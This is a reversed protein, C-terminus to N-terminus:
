SRGAVPEKIADLKAIIQRDSYHQLTIAKRPCVGACIGCGQCGAPEIYAKGKENIRPVNYPCSRVCTLCAVCKDEDVVSVVGGVMLYPQSLVTLARSVAGRAQTISETINKPGHALGCVYMGENVLDLPRLKMHAEMIFKDETLPLKLDRAFEEADPQPRIAASLVLLDPQFEIERNLTRDLVKIRLGGELSVEPKIASDFRIFTVGMERARRYQLEHMGYSRIDRYLIIVEMDPDSEKLHIANNIAQSCCVRSCYLHGAERSGVCQIMVVSKLGSIGESGEGKDRLRKELELQTLIRPSQGYMYEDPRYETGGTAIIVVGHRVNETKGERTIIDTSYNGLFGSSNSIRAGLYVKINQKSEVREILGALLKQPDSRESFFIKRANGGLENEKEVLVTEFGQDAVALAATMGALGGGMVLACRTVEARQQHLPLLTEARAVAMRVLDKAKDTSEPMHSAHVWSCQDRINAMEFLYKNLGGERITDQFLPEHTRPSCSAVVVRNLNKEQIAKIVRTQTDTSCTYLNEEAHVVNPITKAYEVVAPVDVVRAINTGCRCVFVGVRPEQEEVETEPPYVKETVQTGRAEAISQGALCAAGSASMVSEPIDMPGSFAGAVYIGPRSTMGPQTEEFACFGFKDLEIGAISALEATGEAPVLGVSLVVMEFEEQVKRGDEGTYELLLNHSKQLEKVTSPIGQIYRVGFKAHASEYYREFGKGFARIDNYFITPQISSDHERAIIAEKTAYMCCVSSCYDRGCSKDRSGVCQIWAVKVPHEGDSPRRVQGQYPGSASLIREFQLSTVVNPMRGYGYEGKLRADFPDFGPALILSGVKLEVREEKQTHDIAKAQCVAVCQMCESCLGCNLCRESERKAQEESYGLAVEDFTTLRRDMPITEMQVRKMKPHKGDPIRAPEESTRSRDRKLDFGSLFREISIAAEHGHAIAEVASKPGSVGDGGAFVGTEGTALTVPDAIILGGGSTKVRADKNLVALDTAQGIAVIVSDCEYKITVNQDYVPAFKKDKDYVSTCQMFEIGCVRGEKGTIERPGWSTNVKIGEEEAEEIEWTHAPMEERSELCFATVEAAGLRLATRAADMAVNGGGIVAVRKGLNVKKDRNSNRLFDLAPLVGQLDAGPISLNRSKQVGIALYVAKFGQSKLNALTFRNNVPTNLKLEIGLGIIESIDAALVDRPLRYRPIAWQLQGGPKSTAEFITVPYGHRALDYACTLGSPGAGVVAVRPRSRDIVNKEEPPLSGEERKRRVVDAIFAKIPAIGVPQDIQGRNCEQECPHHCIRGVSAPLPIWQKIHEFAELYKGKSCLAIYGQGNCGAPCTLKCPPRANKTIAMAGPIAQPYRRSTAKRKNLGEEFESDVEVPCAEVCDGCGSCKETDIYRPKKLVRVDFDGEEGEVAEVAANTIIEINRHKAVEILKPSIMCMSCDNTPFTKDLQSMRGGISTTKEVIYVKFGSNALDLASQMGAIGGGVVLVAGTKQKKRESM